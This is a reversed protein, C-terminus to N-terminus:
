DDVLNVISPIGMSVVALFIGLDPGIFYYVAVSLALGLSSILAFKKAQKKRKSSVIAM